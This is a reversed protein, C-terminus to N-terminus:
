EAILLRGVESLEPIKEYETKRGPHENKDLEIVKLFLENVKDALIALNSGFNSIAMDRLLKDRDSINGASASYSKVRPLVETRAQSIFFAMAYIQDYLEDFRYGQVRTYDSIEILNDIRDWTRKDLTMYLLLSRLHRNNINKTYHDGISEILGFIEQEKIAM